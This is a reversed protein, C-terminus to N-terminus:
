VDLGHQAEKVQAADAANRQREADKASVAGWEQPAHEDFTLGPYKAVLAARLQALNPAHWGSGERGMGFSTFGWRKLIEALPQEGLRKLADGGRKQMQEFLCDDGRGLALWPRELKKSGAPWDAMAGPLLAERAFQVIVADAAPMSKLKQNLLEVTAPIDEGNFKSIDRKLLGDLLAARGGDRMQALLELLYIRNDNKNLGTPKVYIAVFRRDNGEITLPNDDNTAFMSRSYSATQIADIGKREIMKTKESVVTKIIQADQHNGAFMTEDCFMCLAEASHAKFKGTIQSPQTLHLFHRGFIHGYGLFTVGKGTGPNGRASIATREPNEPYQVGSAMWNLMYNYVLDNGDCFNVRLNELYKSCDGIRPEVAYGSFLNACNTVRGARDTRTIIRGEGPRFEVGDLNLHKPQDLWHKGRGTSIIRQGVKIEKRPHDVHNCFDTKTAFEAKDQTPFLEDPKWTMVRFKGAVSVSAHKENLADLEPDQNFLTARDLLRNITYTQNKQRLVHASIPYEPDIFIAAADERSVGMRDFECAVAFTKESDSKYQKGDATGTVILQLAWGPAKSILPHAHVDEIRGAAIVPSSKKAGQAPAATPAAKKFDEIDYTVDPNDWVVYALARHRGKKMKGEDPCNITGPLRMIRDINHCNDGGLEHELQKNYLKADEAKVLDGGIEIPKKLNWYAAVGGGSVVVKSPRRPLKELMAILRPIAVEQAEGKRPDLDIHLKVVKDLDTRECKKNMGYMAPNVPGYLNGLGQRPDIFDFIEKPNRDPFCRAEFKGKAGTVRDIEFFLAQPVGEQSLVDAVAAATNPVPEVFTLAPAATVDAAAGAIPQSEGRSLSPAASENGADRSVGDPKPVLVNM